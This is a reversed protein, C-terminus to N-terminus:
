IKQRRIIKPVVLAAILAIAFVVPFLWMAFQFDAASYTRVGGQTIGSWHQDLLWGFLPEFIIGGSLISISIVSVATATIVPPNNEAVLPYSIVQTSTAFGLLFFLTLLTLQSLHPIQMLCLVIILASIAGVIMLFQRKGLYDSLWGVFPAGLMTGIFLMSTAYSASTKTLQHVQQLYLIGWIGGLLFIPLNVLCSYIGCLWNYPKSLALRLSRWYGISQLQKRQQQQLKSLQAPYDHVLTFILVIIGLGIAADILLTQRWNLHNILLTLPTQAIFGGLMAFTVMLGIVLALRYPPFWRSALRVCSLFCFASGIGTLFRSVTLVFLTQAQSFMFTGLVCVSLACLVVKRTSFRDLITAAPFLFIVTAYFYSSSLYGLTTASLKFELILPKSIANFMNMQIFEYFYFLAGTFCVIWSKLSSTILHTSPYPIATQDSVTTM